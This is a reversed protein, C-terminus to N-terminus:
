RSAAKVPRTRKTELWAEVEHVDYLVARGIKRFPPGDGHIRATVFFVQSLGCYAAIEPTRYYRKGLPATASLSM